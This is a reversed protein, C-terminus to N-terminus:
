RRRSIPVFDRRKSGTFLQRPRGIKQVPEKIMENWQSIWGVVRAVAFIVTFMSVPIGMARYIIGSY